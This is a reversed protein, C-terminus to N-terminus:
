LWLPVNMVGAEETDPNSAREGPKLPLSRLLLGRARSTSSSMRRPNRSSQIVNVWRGVFALMMEFWVNPKTEPASPKIKRAAKM